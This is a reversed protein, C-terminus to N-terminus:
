QFSARDRWLSRASRCRSAAAHHPLRICVAGDAEAARREQPRVPARGVVERADDVVVVEADRVDDAAGIVARVGLELLRQGAREAELRRLVDM